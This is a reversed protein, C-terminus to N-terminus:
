VNNYTQGGSGLVSLAASADRPFSYSSPFCGEKSDAHPPCASQLLALSCPWTSRLFCSREREAQEKLLLASFSHLCTFSWSEPMCYCDQGQQRGFVDRRVALLLHVSWCFCPWLQIGQMCVTHIHCRVWLVFVAHPFHCQSTCCCRWDSGQHWLRNQSRATLGASLM